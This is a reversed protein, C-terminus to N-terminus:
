HSMVFQVTTIRDRPTHASSFGDARHTRAALHTSPPFSILRPRHRHHIREIPQTPQPHKGLMESEWVFQIIRRQDRFIGSRSRQLAPSWGPILQIEDLFLTVQQTDRLGPHLRFYEELLFSLDSAGRDALRDDEFNLFVLSVRPAGADLLDALCQWLFCTKGSHRMGIVAMAEGPVAPNRIERRTLMPIEAVLSSALKERLTNYLEVKM